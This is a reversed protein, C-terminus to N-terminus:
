YYPFGRDPLGQSPIGGGSSQYHCQIFFTLESSIFWFLCDPVSASKLIDVVV